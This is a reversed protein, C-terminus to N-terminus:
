ASARGPHDRVSRSRLRPPKRDAAHRPQANTPDPRQRRTHHLQHQDQRDATRAASTPTIGNLSLTVTAPLGGTGCTSNATNSTLQRDVVMVSIKGDPRTAALSLVGSASSASPLFKSGPPFAQNLLQFVHYGVYTNSTQDDILGFQPGDVGDYQHIM